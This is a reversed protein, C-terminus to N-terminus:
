AHASALVLPGLLHPTASGVLTNAERVVSVDSGQSTTVSLVLPGKLNSQSSSPVADSITLPGFTESTTQISHILNLAAVRPAHTQSVFYAVVVLIAMAAIKAITAPTIVFTLHSGSGSYSDLELTM